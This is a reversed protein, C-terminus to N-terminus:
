SLGQRRWWKNGSSRGRFTSVTSIYWPDEGQHEAEWMRWYIKTKGSLSRWECNVVRSRFPNTYAWIRVLWVIINKYVWKCLPHRTNKESKCINISSVCVIYNNICRFAIFSVSQKIHLNSIECNYIAYVYSVITFNLKYASNEGRTICSLTKYEVTM